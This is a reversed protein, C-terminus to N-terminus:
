LLMLEVNKRRMEKILIQAERAALAQVSGAGLAQLLQTHAENVGAICFFEAIRAWNLLREEAIKMSQSLASRLNRSGARKLLDDSNVIGEERLRAADSPPISDLEALNFAM